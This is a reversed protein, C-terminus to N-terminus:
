AVNAIINTAKDVYLIGELHDYEHQIIRANLGDFTETKLEKGNFYKVTISNYRSVTGYYNPVSLADKRIM